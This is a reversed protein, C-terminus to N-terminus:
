PPSQIDRVNQTRPREDHAHLKDHEGQARTQVATYSKNAGRLWLSGGRYPVRELSTPSSEARGDSPFETYQLSTSTTLLLLLLQHFRIPASSHQHFSPLVRIKM